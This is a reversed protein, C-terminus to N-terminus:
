GLGTGLMFSRVGIATWDGQRVQILQEVNLFIAALQDSSLLGAVLMPRYFEEVVIKLDRGYKAETEVIETIIERREGRRLACKSCVGEEGEVVSLECDPCVM